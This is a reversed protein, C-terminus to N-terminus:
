FYWTLSSLFAVFSQSIQLCLASYSCLLLALPVKEVVGHMEKNLVNYCSKKMLRTCM